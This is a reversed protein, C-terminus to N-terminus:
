TNNKGNAYNKFYQKWYRRKYNTKIHCKRCLTILNNSNCNKKNYDIHHVSCGYQSCLQCIYNDRERIARKLTETWDISYPEFSIGGKWHPHNKGKWNISNKPQRGKLALSTRKKNQESQPRSKACKVCLGTKVRRSLLKGCKTCKHIIKKRLKHGKVFQGKSNRNQM